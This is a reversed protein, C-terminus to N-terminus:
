DHRRYLNFEQRPWVQYNNGLKHDLTKEEVTEAQEGYFALSESNVRIFVHQFRFDGEFREKKVTLNILCADVFGLCAAYGISAISRHLKSMITHLLM